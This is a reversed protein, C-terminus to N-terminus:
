ANNHKELIGRFMDAIRQRVVAHERFSIKFHAPQVVEEGSLFNDPITRRHMFTLKFSGFGDLQVSKGLSINHILTEITNELVDAVIKEALGTKRSVSGVVSKYNMVSM